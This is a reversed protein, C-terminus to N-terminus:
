HILGAFLHPFQLLLSFNVYGGFGSSTSSGSSGAISGFTAGGSSAFVSFGGGTPGALCFHHTSICIVSTATTKKKKLWDRDRAKRKDGQDTNAEDKARVQEEM